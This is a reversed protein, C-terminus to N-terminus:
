ADFCILGAREFEALTKGVDDRARDLSVASVECIATVMEEITTVGDCLEWLAAASENVVLVVGRDADSLLVQSGIQELRTGPLQRPRLGARSVPETM